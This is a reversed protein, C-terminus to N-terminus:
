SGSSPPLQLCLKASALGTPPDPKLGRSPVALFLMFPRRQIQTGETGELPEQMPRCKTLPPAKWFSSCWLPASLWHILRNISKFNSPISLHPRIPLVHTVPVLNQLCNRQEWAGKRQKGSGFNLLKASVRGAITSQIVVIHRFSWSMTFFSRYGWCKPPSAPSDRTWPRGPSHASVKDWLFLYHWQFLWFM